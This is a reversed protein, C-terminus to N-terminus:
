NDLTISIKQGKLQTGAPVSQSVVKGFGNVEVILGKNELVFLADRLGLGTVSPVAGEPITRQKLKISDTSSDIVSFNSQPNNYYPLGLYNFIQVFDSKNGVDMHPLSKSILKPKPILNLPAHLNLRSQYCKDAIERFVPGAVDGGYFGNQTPNYIVVICTYIPNDTPFYGAFSAQYGGVKTGQSYRTYDIQATGTKGAFKYKNSKLKEATGSEVVGELLEKAADITTPTAIDKKLVTPTYRQIPEGFRQVEAVLYPKMMTGDNAVANYFTLMQLPTIQLEYGIAMWPLTTGSWLDEDSYAEKIYPKVEGEIEIGTPINLNFQKLRKIFRGAGENQNLKTKKGYYGNVLSAIGVNSSIEFANKITTSDIQYSLPNSDEMTEEYFEATGRNILVTDDLNIYGDELLAMISALKFTSGPETASAISHNYREYYGEDEKGLNAIAKIAGTRTEMVIASGWDAEHALMARMLATETIDQLNIDITTLLDDGNKPEVQTIDNVPMWINDGQDVKVMLQEGPQGGLVEDFKGELGVKREGRVYGVTRMSLLGFPRKRKSKKEAIFGGKYKGLNFLPFTAMRQKQAYSIDRVISVYQKKEERWKILEDRYEPATFEGVFNSLAKALSDVNHNFDKDNPTVADFYIDFFPISTALLSGDEAMINGRESEVNRYAVKKKEGEIRWRDGELIGIQMTRYILIISIPIVLGFLVIYIRVLVENKIDM